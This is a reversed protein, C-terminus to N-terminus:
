PVSMRDDRAPDTAPGRGTAHAAHGGLSGYDSGDGFANRDFASM